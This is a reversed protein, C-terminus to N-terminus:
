APFLEDVERDALRKCSRQRAANLEERTKGFFKCLNFQDILAAWEDDTLLALQDDLSIGKMQEIMKEGEQYLQVLDVCRNCPNLLHLFEQM